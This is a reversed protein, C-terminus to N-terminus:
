GRDRPSPSTYLLCPSININFQVETLCENADLVFATHTGESLNNFVPNSEAPFQDVAYVYPSTGGSASLTAVDQSTEVQLTLASPETIQADIFVLENNADIVQFNYLGASLNDFVNSAQFVIGLGYQYPPTGGAATLEITGTAEGNCFIENTIQATASLEEVDITIVQSAICNNEDRVSVQYTGNTVQSFINGSDRICM